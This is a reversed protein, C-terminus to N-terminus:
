RNTNNNKIKTIKRVKGLKNEKIFKELDTGHNYQVPTTFVLFVKKLSLITNGISTLTDLPNKYQNIGHIEGAACCRLSQLSPM